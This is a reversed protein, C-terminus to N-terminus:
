ALPVLCAIWVMQMSAQDGFVLTDHDPVSLDAVHPPRKMRVVEQHPHAFRGVPMRGASMRELLRVAQFFEFCFPEERLRAAVDHAVTTVATNAARSTTAM